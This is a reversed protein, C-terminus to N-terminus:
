DLGARTLAPYNGAVCETRSLYRVRAADVARCPKM